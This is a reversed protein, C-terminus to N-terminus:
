RDTRGDRALSGPASLNIELGQTNDSNRCSCPTHREAIYRAVPNHKLSLALNLVPQLKQEAILQDFFFFSRKAGFYEGLKPALPSRLSDENTAQHIEESLLKLPIAM